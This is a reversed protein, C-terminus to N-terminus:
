AIELAQTQEAGETSHLAFCSRDAILFLGSLWRLRSKRHWTCRKKARLATCARQAFFFRLSHSRSSAKILSIVIVAFSANFARKSRTSSDARRKLCDIVLVCYNSEWNM